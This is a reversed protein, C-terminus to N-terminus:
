KPGSRKIADHVKEKCYIYHISTHIAFLIVPMSFPLADREFFVLFRSAIFRSINSFLTPFFDLYDIDKTSVLCARLVCRSM